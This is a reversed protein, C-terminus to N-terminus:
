RWKHNHVPKRLEQCASEHNGPRESRIREYNPASVPTADSEADKVVGSASHSRRGGSCLRGSRSTEDGDDRPVIV